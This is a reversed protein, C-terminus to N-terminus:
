LEWPWGKNKREKSLFWDEPIVEAILPINHIKSLLEAVKKNEGKLVRLHISDLGLSKRGNVKDLKELAEDESAVRQCHKM